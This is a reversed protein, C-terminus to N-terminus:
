VFYKPTERSTDKKYKKYLSSSQIYIQYLDACEPRITNPDFDHRSGAVKQEDELFWSPQPDEKVPLITQHQCMAVNQFDHIMKRQYAYKKEIKEFESKGLIYASYLGISPILLIPYLM